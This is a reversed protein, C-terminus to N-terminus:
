PAGEWGFLRGANAWTAEELAGVAMGRKAALIEFTERLYAPENRTGRRSRPALYPADTELVLRDLPTSAATELLGAASKYTINGAFSVHLGLSLARDRAREDYSFCHMVGKLRGGGVEEIVAFTDEAAERSHVIVPLGHELAISLMGAFVRRQTPADARSKFYDLGIEGIACPAARAVFDRIRALEEPGTEHASHPHLGASHRISPHSAAALRAAENTQGDTGVAVMRVVGAQRARELMLPRDADFDPFHPHCHTDVIM